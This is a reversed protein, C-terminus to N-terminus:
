RKMAEKGSIIEILENTISAQRARNRIRGYRNIMDESNNSSNEMATMRAAQESLRSNFLSVQVTYFLYLEMAKSLFIEPIPDSYTPISKQIADSKGQISFPLVQTLITNQRIMSVFHNNISLVQHFEEKSFDRVIDYAIEKVTALTLTQDNIETQHLITYGKRACFLAGKLGFCSVSTEINDRKNKEITLMVEKQVSSNHSGCLGRDGTFVIVHVKKVDKYGKMFPHGSDHFAGSIHHTIAHLSSIFIELTDQFHILKRLKISSIMQM